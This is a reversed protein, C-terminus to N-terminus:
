QINAIMNYWTHALVSTRSEGVAHKEPGFPVWHLTGYSKRAIRSNLRMFPLSQDGAEAAIM